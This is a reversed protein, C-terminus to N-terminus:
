RASKIFNFGDLVISLYLHHNGDFGGSDATGKTLIKRTKIHRLRSAIMFNPAM